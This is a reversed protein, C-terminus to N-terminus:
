EEFKMRKPDFYTLYEAYYEISNLIDDMARHAPTTLKGTSAGFVNTITEYITSVDIVRYFISGTIKSMRSDLFRKDFGVNSGALMVKAKPEVHMELLSLIDQEVEDYTKLNNKFLELALGSKQHMKRAVTSGETLARLVGINPKVLTDYKFIPNLKTDTLIFAAELVHHEQADLGTTELDVWLFYTPKNM